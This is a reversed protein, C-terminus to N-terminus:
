LAGPFGPAPQVRLRMHSLKTFCMLTIVVPSVPAVPKGQVITKVTEETSEGAAVSHWRREASKTHSISSPQASKAEAFSSALM